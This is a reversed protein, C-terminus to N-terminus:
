QISPELELSSGKIGTDRSINVMKMLSVASAKRKGMSFSVRTFLNTKIYLSVKGM